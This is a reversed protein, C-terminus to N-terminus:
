KKFNRLEELRAIDPLDKDRALRLRNKEAFELFLIFDPHEVDM